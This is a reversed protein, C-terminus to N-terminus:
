LKFVHDGEIGRKGFANRCDLILQADTAIQAHDFADHDTVLVAADFSGLQGGDIPTAEVTNGLISVFSTAHPDAFEVWCGKQRLLRYLELGPSERLDDVNSKYAMGLIMIRSGKLPKKEENLLDALKTVVFRPMNGNIDTALEIFRNYFDVAKAKWSLYLPDLPICHGGIGPGPYFPM